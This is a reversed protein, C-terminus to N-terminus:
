LGAHLPGEAVSTWEIIRSRLGPVGDDVQPHARTFLSHTARPNTQRASTSESRVCLRIRLSGPWFLCSPNRPPLRTHSHSHPPPVPYTESDAATTGWVLRHFRESTAVAEGALPMETSADAFDLNFIELCASSSFSLDIAGAMTGVAMYPATPSCTCVGVGDGRGDACMWSELTRGRSVLAPLSHPLIVVPSSNMPNCLVFLM